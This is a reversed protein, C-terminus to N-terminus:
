SPLSPPCPREQDRISSPLLVRFSSGQGPKSTVQVSGRHARVIGQVAALGLGRGTFKTSFFPEFARSHTEADMGVGNDTVEVVVYHGSPLDAPDVLLRTTLNVRGRGEPLAEVANHLLSFVVLRIQEHDAEILPLDPALDVVLAAAPELVPRIGPLLQRLLDNLDLPQFQFRTQGAYALMRQCIDAAQRAADLVHGLYDHPPSDVPVETLALSTYGMISTLLNNFQHAVGGAMTTLSQQTQVQRAAEDQERQQAAQLTARVQDREARLLACQQELERLRIRLRDLTEVPDSM